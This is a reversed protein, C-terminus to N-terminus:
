SSTNEREKLWRTITPDSPYSPDLAKEKNYQSLVEIHDEHLKRRIAPRKEGDRYLQSVIELIAIKASAKDHPATTKDDTSVPFISVGDDPADVIAAASEQKIIQQSEGAPLLEILKDRHVIEEIVAVVQSDNLGKATQECEAWFGEDLLADGIPSPTNRSIGIGAAVSSLWFRAIAVAWHHSSGASYPMSRDLQHKLSAIDFQEILDADLLGELSLCRKAIKKCSVLCSILSQKAKVLSERKEKATVVSDLISSSRLDAWSMTIGLKEHSVIDILEVALDRVRRLDEKNIAMTEGILFPPESRDVPSFTWRLLGRLYSSRSGFFIALLSDRQGPRM